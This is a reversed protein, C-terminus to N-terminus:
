HQIQMRKHKPGPAVPQGTKPDLLSEEAPQHLPGPGAKTTYIYKVDGAKPVRGTADLKSLLEASSCGAPAVFADMEAVVRAYLAPDNCYDAPEGPAPFYHAAVAFV